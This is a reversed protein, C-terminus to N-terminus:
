NKKKEDNKAAEENICITESLRVNEEEALHQHELHLRQDDAVQQTWQARLAESTTVWVACLLDAAQADTTTPSVLTLRSVSYADAEFDPCPLLSPDSHLRNM